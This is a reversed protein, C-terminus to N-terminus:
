LVSGVPLATVEIQELRRRVVAPNTSIPEQVSTNQSAENIWLELERIETQFMNANLILKELQRKQEALQAKLDAYQEPISHVEQRLEPVDPSQSDVTQLLNQGLRCAQKVDPDHSELSSLLAQCHEYHFIM